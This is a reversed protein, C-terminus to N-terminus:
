TPRGLNKGRWESKIILKEMDVFCSAPAPIANFNPDFQSFSVISLGQMWSCVIDIWKNPDEKSENM